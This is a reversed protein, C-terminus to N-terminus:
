DSKSGEKNRDHIIKSKIYYIRIPYNNFCILEACLKYKSDVRQNTHSPLTELTAMNLHDMIPPDDGM